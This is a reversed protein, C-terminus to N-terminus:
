NSSSNDLAINELDNVQFQFLKDHLSAPLIFNEYKLDEAIYKIIYEDAKKWM